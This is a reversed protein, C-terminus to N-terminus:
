SLEWYLFFKKKKTIVQKSENLFTKNTINQSSIHQQNRDNEGGHVCM